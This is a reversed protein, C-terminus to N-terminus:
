KKESKVKKGSKKKPVEIGAKKLLSLVTETPRAGKSLWHKVREANVVLQKGEEPFEPLYTGVREIVDGDRAARIDTVVIRFSNV